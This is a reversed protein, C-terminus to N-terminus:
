FRNMIFENFDSACFKADKLDVSQIPMEVINTSVLSDYNFAYALDSGDSGFYLFNPTFEKVSEEKNMDIVKDLNWLELYSYKGIKGEAGNFKLLFDEYEEPFKMNLESQAKVIQKEKLPKNIKMAKIKEIVNDNM